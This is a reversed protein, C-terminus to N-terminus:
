AICCMRTQIDADTDNDEPSLTEDDEPLPSHVSPQIRKAEESEYGIFLTEWGLGRRIARLESRDEVDAFPDKDLFTPQSSSHIRSSM